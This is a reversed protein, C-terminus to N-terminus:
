MHSVAAYAPDLPDVALFDANVPEVNQCRAKALMMKLTGFRKRDREFALLQPVANLVTWTLV